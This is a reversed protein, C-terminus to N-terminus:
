DTALDRLWDGELRKGADRALQSLNLKMVEDGEHTVTALRDGDDSSSFRATVEGPIHALETEFINKGPGFQPVFFLKQGIGNEYTVWIASMSVGDYIMVNGTFDPRFEFERSRNSEPRRAYRGDDVGFFGCDRFPGGYVPGGHGM